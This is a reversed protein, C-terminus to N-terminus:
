MERFGIRGCPLAFLAPVDRTFMAGRWSPHLPRHVHVDSARPPRALVVVDHVVSVRFILRSIRLVRFLRFVLLLSGNHGANDGSIIESLLGCWCMCVIIFDQLVLSGM